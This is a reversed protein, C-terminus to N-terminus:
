LRRTGGLEPKGILVFPAWYYPHPYSQRLLGAARRLAESASAGAALHWYLEEMFKATSEDNVDWLTVLVSRAGAYLLGRTLGVLEDAGQVASLGTGCGSLVALEADLKLDYLDFLSLRADGLQIASFMPNDRRYFGHTALHLFRCGGGTQRLAEVTAEEGVRLQAGPLMRADTGTSM